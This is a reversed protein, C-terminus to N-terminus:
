KDAEGIACHNQVLLHIIKGLYHLILVPKRKLYSRSLCIPRVSNKLIKLSILNVLNREGLMQWLILEPFM